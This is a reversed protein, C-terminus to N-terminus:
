LKLNLLVTELDSLDGVLRKQPEPKVRILTPTIVIRDAEAAAPNEFVDIVQLKHTDVYKATLLRNLNDVAEIGIRSHKVVYLKLDLM